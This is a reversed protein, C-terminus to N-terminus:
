FKIILLSRNGRMVKSRSKNVELFLVNPIHISGTGLFLRIHSIELILYINSSTGSKNSLTNLKSVETM